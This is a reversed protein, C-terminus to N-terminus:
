DNHPEAEAAHTEIPRAPARLQAVPPQALAQVEPPPPPLESRPPRRLISRVVAELVNDATVTRGRVENLMEGALGISQGQILVQVQESNEVQLYHLYQDGQRKILAQLREDEGLEDLLRSAVTQVFALLEPDEALRPLLMDVQTEILSGIRADDALETLIADIKADLLDDIEKNVALYDVVDGVTVNFMSRALRRSRIEEQRGTEQWAAVEAAGKEVLRQMRRRAPKLLRSEAAPRTTRRGMRTILNGVRLARRSVQRGGDYAAFLLGVAAQVGPGSLADPPSAPTPESGTVAVLPADVGAPPDPMPAVAVAMRSQQTARHQEEFHQMRRALESATVLAGGVLLRLLSRYPDYAPPASREGATSAPTSVPPAPMEPLPDFDEELVPITVEQPPHGNEHM